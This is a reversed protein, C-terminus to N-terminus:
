LKRNLKRDTKNKKRTIKGYEGTAREGQQGGAEREEQSSKRWGQQWARAALAVGGLGGARGAAVTAVSPAAAGLDCGCRGGGAAMGAGRRAVGWCASRAM